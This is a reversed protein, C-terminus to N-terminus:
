YFVRRPPFWHGNSVCVKTKMNLPKFLHIKTLSLLFESSLLTLNALSTLIPLEARRASNSQQPIVECTLHLQIHKFFSKEGLNLLQPFNNQALERPIMECVRKLIMLKDLKYNIMEPHVSLLTHQFGASIGHLSIFLSKSEEMANISLVM